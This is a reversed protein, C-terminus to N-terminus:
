AGGFEAEVELTAQANTAASRGRVREGNSLVYWGGGVAYPFEADEPVEALGDDGEEEEDEEVVVASPEPPSVTPVVVPSDMVGPPPTTVQGPVEAVNKVYRIITGAEVMFGEARGWDSAPVEDGPAYDVMTGSGIPHEATFPKVAKFGWVVPDSSM